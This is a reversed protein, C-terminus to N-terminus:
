RYLTKVKGWTTPAAPVSSSCWEGHQPTNWGVWALPDEIRPFGLGIVEDHAGGVTLIREQAYFLCAPYRCGPCTSEPVHRFTFKMIYTEVGAEITVPNGPDVTTSWTLQAQTGSYEGYQAAVVPGVASAWLDACSGPFDVSGIFRGPGGCGNPSDQFRWWRPVVIPPDAMMVAFGTSGIVDTHTQDTVVSAIVVDSGSPDLCANKDVVRGAPSGVCDDFNLYLQGALV